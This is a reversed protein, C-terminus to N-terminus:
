IFNHSFLKKQLSAFCEIIAIAHICHPPDPALTQEDPVLEKHLLWFTDLFANEMNEVGVAMIVGFIAAM